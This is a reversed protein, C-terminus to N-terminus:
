FGISKYYENLRKYAGSSQLVDLESRLTNQIGRLADVTLEGVQRADKIMTAVYNSYSPHNGHFPVNLSMLNEGHNMNYKEPLINELKRVVAQPILHHIQTANTIASRSALMAGREPIAVFSGLFEAMTWVKNAAGSVNVGEGTVRNIGNNFIATINTISKTAELLIPLSPTARIEQVPKEPVTPQALINNGLSIDGINISQLLWENNKFVTINSDFRSSSNSGTNWIETHRISTSTPASYYTTSTDSSSDIEYNFIPIAAEYGTPDFGKLPNNWVYAYRNFSKLNEPAQIIPDASMFRGVLPDYIRGNMHVAGVEDLHEHLTYGRDTKLGVLADLKDRAGPTTNIFRRKGWPDFALREVVAGTADTIVSASGLHDQTLYSVASVPLGNLTGSRSTAIAFM